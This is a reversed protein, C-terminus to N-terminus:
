PDFSGLSFFHTQIPMQLWRLTVTWPIRTRSLQSMILSCLVETVISPFVHISFAETRWFDVKYIAIFPPKVVNFYAEFLCEYVDSDAITDGRREHYDSWLEGYWGSLGFTDDDMFGSICLMDCNRWLLVLGCVCPIQVFCKTFIPGATGSIHECVSVCVSLIIAISRQGEQTSYNTTTRNTCIRHLLVNIICLLQRHKVTQVRYCESRWTTIRNDRHKCEIVVDGDQQRENLHITRQRGKNVKPRM